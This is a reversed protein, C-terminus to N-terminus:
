FNGPALRFAEPRAGELGAAPATTMILIYLYLCAMMRTCTKACILMCEFMYTQMGM